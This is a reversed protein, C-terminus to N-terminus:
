RAPAARIAVDIAEDAKDDYLWGVGHPTYVVIGHNRSRSAMRWREADEREREREVQTLNDTTLSGPGGIAANLAAITRQQEQVRDALQDILIAAAGFFANAAETTMQKPLAASLGDRYKRAQEVLTSM